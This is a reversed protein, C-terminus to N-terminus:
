ELKRLTQFLIAELIRLEKETPRNGLLIRRLVILANTKPRSLDFGLKLLWDKLAQEPLLHAKGSIKSKLYIPDPSAEIGGGFIQRCIFLTLLVAQSLNLSTNIGYTPLKAVEHCHELDKASLGHDEPGFILQLSISKTKNQVQSKKIDTLVSKILRTKRNKGDRASLGLRIGPPNDTFYEKLSSYIRLEKLPEQGSAAAQRAELNISAVPNILVLDRVGMNTMARATSGINRAYLSGVLIVSVHLSPKSHKTKPKMYGGM